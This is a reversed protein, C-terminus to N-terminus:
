ERSFCPQIGLEYMEQILVCINHCLAKLLIENEQSVPDKSRINDRFKSKMMHFVTESNSRLHYHQLFDEKNLQFYHYMKNWASSGLSKSIANKKFPIFATGGLEAVLSHNKRSSYGLDASVEQISFDQATETVLPEFHPSDNSSEPTIRIRTIINTRTGSMVHAKLWQRYKMNKGHKFSYYRAFRSTGFGSSDVAFKTEVSSLPLATLHILKHLQPTLHKDRMINSITVYSCKRGLLGKEVANDMMSEFRRLSFTSYIKLASAFIGDQMPFAPRGFKYTPQEITKVADALLEMFLPQEHTQAETYAKWNQPYSVKMTQTQTIMTNGEHDIHIEKKLIFEVAFIHKCKGKRLEYDPCNCEESISDMKVLYAGSGTQSPVTWGKNTKHIRCQQAIQQGKIKRPENTKPMRVVEMTYRNPIYYYYILM